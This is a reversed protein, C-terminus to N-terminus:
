AAHDHVQDVRDRLHPSAQHMRARQPVRIAGGGQGAPWPCRISRRPQMPAAAQRRRLLAAGWRRAGRGGPEGTPRVLRAPAVTRRGAIGVRVVHRGTELVLGEEVVRGAQRQPRDGSRLGARRQRRPDASARAREHVEREARHDAPGVIKGRRHRRQPAEGGIHQHRESRGCVPYQLIQGVVDPHLAEHILCGHKGLGVQHDVVGAGAGHEPRERIGPALQQEGLPRVLEEVGVGQACGAHRVGKRRPLDGCVRDLCCGADGEVRPGV